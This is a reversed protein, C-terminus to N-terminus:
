RAEWRDVVLDAVARQEAAFPHYALARSRDTDKGNVWPNDSCIAHGRSAPWLDLFTVGAQEAASRLTARLRREVGAFEEQQDRQLPLSPCSRAPDVLHPYGVLLVLADPAARGVVARLSATVDARTRALIGGIDATAPSGDCQPLQQQSFSCVLRSFLNGDNGGIGVTVLDADRRVARLQPPVTSDGGAVRQRGTVDGSDAGSCSVDDVHEPALRSAVLSPYNGSSRFCGGAVDTTPVFPAAAYSDGLAVYARPAAPGRASPPAASTTAGPEPTAARGTDCGSLSAALTFAAVGVLAAPRTRRRARDARTM